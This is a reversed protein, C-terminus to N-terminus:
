EGLVGAGPEGDGQREDSNTGGQNDFAGEGNRGKASTATTDRISGIVSVKKGLKQKLLSVARGQAPAKFLDLKGRSALKIQEFLADGADPELLYDFRGYHQIFSVISPRRESDTGAGNPGLSDSNAPQLNSRGIARWFGQSHAESGFVLHPPLGKLFDDYCVVKDHMEEEMFDALLRLNPWRNRRQLYAAHLSAAVDSFFNDETEQEDLAKAVKVYGDVIIALLFNLM